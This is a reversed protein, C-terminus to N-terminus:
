AANGTVTMVLKFVLRLLMALVTMFQTFDSQEEPKAEEEWVATLTIENEGNSLDAFTDEASVEKEGCFWGVFKFGEKVPAEVGDLVTDAKKVLKAEVASGGDTDFSVTYARDGIKVLTAPKGSEDLLAYDGCSFSEPALLAAEGSLSLWKAGENLCLLAGSEWDANGKIEGCSATVAGGSVSVSDIAVIGRTMAASFAGALADGGKVSLEGGKVVLSGCALGGVTVDEKNLGIADAVNVSVKGSELTFDNGYLYVGYSTCSDMDGTNRGVEVFLEGDGKVTLSGDMNIGFVAGDGTAKVTNKGSLVVTLPLDCFIATREGEFEANNLYLTGSRKEPVFKATGDGFIDDMNEETVVTKGLVLMFGSYAASGFALVFSMMCLCLVVCLTKKLTNKM